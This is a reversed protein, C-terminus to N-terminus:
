SESKYIKQMGFKKCYPCRIAKTSDGVAKYRIGGINWISSTQGCLCTFKWQKSEKMMEDFKKQSTLFKVIRQGLSLKM